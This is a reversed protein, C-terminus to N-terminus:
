PTKKFAKLRKLLSDLQYVAKLIEKCLDTAAEVEAKGVEDYVKAELHAADNGLIRLEDAAELLKKPVVIMSQLAALREKLDKGNAGKDACIEELTRRVMIASSKFCENAHDTLAEEFSTLIKEPIGTPEFDLREAPFSTIKGQDIIVFVLGRCETNPCVRVGMNCHRVMSQGQPGKMPVGILADLVNLIGAFAGNRRCHPCRLNAVPPQVNQSLNPEFKIM